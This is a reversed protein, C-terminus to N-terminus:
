RVQRDAPPKGQVSARSGIGNARFGSHLVHAAMAIDRARAAVYKVKRRLRNLPFARGIEDIDQQTLKLTAAAANERVHIPNSAKPISIVNGLRLTWAIAVQAPTAGHRRGVRALVPHHLLRNGQGIPSYAMVPMQHERCWPLLDIEIESKGPNYIVQNAACKDQYGLSALELMAGMGFNSVGWQRIKGENRLAEFAEFTEALPTKGRWHLLYLDIVDTRLSRLSKACAAPIGSRTANEPLVKSVLFVKDRLGAIAMGVVEEAGGYAYREATDILTMGLDIGLRLAAAEQSAPQAGEGMRWTGQGLAPAETGDRFFVYQM